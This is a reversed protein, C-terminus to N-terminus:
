SGGDLDVWPREKRSAAHCPCLYRDDGLHHWGPVPEPFNHVTLARTNLDAYIIMRSECSDGCNWVSCVIVVPLYM